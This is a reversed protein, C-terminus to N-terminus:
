RNKLRTQIEPINEEFKGWKAIQTLFYITSEFSLFDCYTGISKM